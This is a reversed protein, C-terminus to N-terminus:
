RRATACALRGRLGTTPPEQLHWEVFPRSTAGENSQAQAPAGRARHQSLEGEAEDVPNVGSLWNEPPNRRVPEKAGESRLGDHAEELLSV